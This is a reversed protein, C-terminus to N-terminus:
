HIVEDGEMVEGVKFMPMINAISRDLEVTVIKIKAVLKGDRNILMESRPLLGKAEGIDIVVFDWKPDVALVKGKLGPPIVPLRERERGLLDELQLTLKQNNQTLLKREIELVEREERLRKVEAIMGRVREVPLDLSKWVGNETLATDRDAKVKELEASVDTIRKDLAAINANASKLNAETTVLKSSTATLTDETKKLTTKTTALETQAAEKSTKEDDRNKILLETKEKVMVFNLVGAALGAVIAIGLFVRLLM